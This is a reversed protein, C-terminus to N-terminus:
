NIIFNKIDEKVDYPINGHFEVKLPKTLDLSVLSLLSKANVAFNGSKAVVDDECKLALNVFKTIDSIQKLEIWFKETNFNSDDVKCNPCVMTGEPIVIGCVICRNEKM